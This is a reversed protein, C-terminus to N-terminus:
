KGPTTMSEIPLAHVAAFVLSGILWFELHSEAAHLLTRRARREPTQYQNSSTLFCAILLILLLDGGLNPTGQLYRFSLETTWMRCGGALAWAALLLM